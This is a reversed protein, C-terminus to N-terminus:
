FLFCCLDWDTWSRSVLNGNDTQQQIDREGSFACSASLSTRRPNRHKGEIKAQDSVRTYNTYAANELCKGIFHRIEERAIPTIVDKQLVRELLTLTAKLAGEPRGFPFAFRSLCTEDDIREDLSSDDKGSIRWKIRSFSDWVNKSKTSDIKKKWPSPQYAVIRDLILWCPTLPSLSLLEEVSVTIRLRTFCMSCLQFSTTSSRDHIRTWGSRPSWQSLLSTEFLKSCWVSFLIRFWDVTRKRTM